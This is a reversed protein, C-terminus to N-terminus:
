KEVDASRMIEIARMSVLNEEMPKGQSTCNVSQERSVNRAIESDPSMELSEKKAQEM